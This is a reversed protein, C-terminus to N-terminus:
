VCGCVVSCRMKDKLNGKGSVSDLTIRKLFAQPSDTSVELETPKTGQTKAKHNFVEKSHRSKSFYWGLVGDLLAPACLAECRTVLKMISQYHSGEDRHGTM